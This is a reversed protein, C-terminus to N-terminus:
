AVEQGILMISWDEIILDSPQLAYPEREGVGFTRYLYPATSEAGVPKLRLCQDGPWAARQAKLQEPYRILSAYVQGFSVGTTCLAGPDASSATPEM